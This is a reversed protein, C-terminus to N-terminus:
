EQDSRFNDLVEQLLKLASRQDDATVLQFQVVGTNESRFVFSHLRYEGNEVFKFLLRWGTRGRYSFSESALQQYGSAWPKFLKIFDDAYEANVTIRRKDVAIVLLAEPGTHEFAQGVGFPPDVEKWHNDLNVSYGNPGRASPEVRQTPELNDLAQQLVGDVDQAISPFTRVGAIIIQNTNAAIRQTIRIRSGTRLTGELVTELWEHGNRTILRQQLVQPLVEFEKALKDIFAQNLARLQDPKPENFVVSPMSNVSAVAAGRPLTFATPTDGNQWARSLRWRFGNGSHDILESSQADAIVKTLEKRASQRINYAKWVGEIVGGLISPLIFVVAMGLLCATLGSLGWAIRHREQPDTRTLRQEGRSFFSELTKRFDVACGLFPWAFPWRLVPAAMRAEGKEFWLFCNKELSQPLRKGTIQQFQRAFYDYSYEGASYNILCFLVKEEPVAQLVENIEWWVGPTHAPQLVVTDAKALWERVQERWEGAEVYARSAGGFAIAEGPRGIAIFPGRKRLFQGLQEEATDTSRSFCLRLLRLPHVNALPGLFRLRSLSRLGLWEALPGPPNFDYLGDDEFSRLFISLHGSKKQLVIDASRLGLRYGIYMLATAPVYLLLGLYFRLQQGYPGFELGIIRAKAAELEATIREIPDTATQAQARASYSNWRFILTTAAIYAIVGLVKFAVSFPRLYRLFSPLAKPRKSKVPQSLPVAPPELAREPGEREPERQVSTGPAFAKRTPEKFETCGCGTCHVAESQNQHGCWNCDKFNPEQTANHM